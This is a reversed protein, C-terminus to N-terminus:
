ASRALARHRLLDFAARGYSQRKLLKLRHIQGEVQGLSWEHTLAALVAAHDRRIGEAVERVWRCLDGNCAPLVRPQGGNRCVATLAVQLMPSPKGEVAIAWTPDDQGSGKM